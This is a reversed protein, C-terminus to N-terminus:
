GKLDDQALDADSKGWNKLTIPLNALMFAFTIPIVGLLKFNAWFVESQTRWIIENLAALFIYFVGWRVALIHWIRDPLKFASEFLLKWVNRKVILGGFIAAAFLGNIITPKIYAFYANQLALTLAGFVLVIAATVLLMPPTRKQVLWAFALALTTAAMFLGTAWFIASEPQSRRVVNYSVMFVLAPGLEVALQSVGHGPRASPAALPSTPLEASM